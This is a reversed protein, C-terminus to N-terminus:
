VENREACLACNTEGPHPKTHTAGRLLAKEKTGWKDRKETTPGWLRGYRREGRHSTNNFNLLLNPTGAASMPCVETCFTRPVSGSWQLILTRAAGRSPRLTMPRWGCSAHPQRQLSTRTLTARSRASRGTVSPVGMVSTRPLIAAAGLLATPSEPWRATLRHRAPTNAALRM